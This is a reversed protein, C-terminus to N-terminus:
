QRNEQSRLFQEATKQDRLNDLITTLLRSLEENGAALPIAQRITKRASSLDNNALYKDAENVLAMINAEPNSANTRDVNSVAEPPAPGTKDQYATNGSPGSLIVNEERLHSMLESDIRQYHPLHKKHVYDHAKQFVEPHKTLMNTGDSHLRIEATVKPIHLFDFKRSLRIWLEWDELARLNEDFLPENDFCSKEHM